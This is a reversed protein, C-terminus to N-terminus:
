PAPEEAMSAQVEILPQQSIRLFRSDPNDLVAILAVVTSFSLALLILVWSRRSKAIAIQYGVAVMALSVLAFLAVWIGDPLRAQLAIAERLAQVDGVSNLSDIYLATVESEPNLSANTVGMDWLQALIDNMEAILAPREDSNEPQAAALLADMYSRFLAQAEDRDPQPLFDTRAYSTSITIAQERVLAKRSDYRDSVIGFTFALMFALLALVTGTIASVPPEKEAESRRRVATGLRYGVEIMLAILLTTFVFVVWLPLDSINLQAIRRSCIDNLGADYESKARRAVAM